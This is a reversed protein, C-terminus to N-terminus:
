SISMLFAIHASLSNLVSRALEETFDLRPMPIDAKESRSTM